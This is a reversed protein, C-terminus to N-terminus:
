RARGASRGSIWKHELIRQDDDKLLVALDHAIDMRRWTEVVLVVTEHDAIQNAMHRTGEMDTFIIDPSPHVFLPSFGGGVDRLRGSRLAMGPSRKKSFGFSCFGLARFSFASMAPFSRITAGTASLGIM